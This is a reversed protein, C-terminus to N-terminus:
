GHALNARFGGQFLVATAALLAYSRRTDTVGILLLEDTSRPLWSFHNFSALHRVRSAAAHRDAACGAEASARGRRLEASGRRARRVRAPDHTHTRADGGAPRAGAQSGYAMREVVTAVLMVLM